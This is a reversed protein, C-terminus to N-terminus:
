PEAVPTVVAPAPSAAPPEGAGVDDAWEDAVADAPPVPEPDARAVAPAEAAPVPLPVTWVPPLLLRVLVLLWLANRVAPRRVVLGVLLAVGALATAAAANALAYEVLTRM